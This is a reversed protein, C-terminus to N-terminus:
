GISSWLFRYGLAVEKAKARSAGGGGHGGDEHEFYWPHHGAANLAAVFRRSHSPDVRDDHSSTDILAAPYPGDGIQHLPSYSRLWVAHEEVDPDGYEDIWARGAPFEHFRLMDYVGVSAWVAGFREPYRTLMVGCLLGGNSGGHCAIKAPKSVGRVVLDDAIAAFDAFALDRGAGKASLHWDPGLEAGGRIYAMVYAGGRELWLKGNIGSYFPSLSVGYGGYGYIQVPVDGAHADAGKPLVLHYPVKTGDESTAELLQVTIGEADFLDPARYMDQWVIGDVGAKLNFQYLTAPQAFGQVSLILTGDGADSNADFPYVYFADAQIPLAVQTAARSALDLVWLEARMRVSQKWVLMGDVFILSGGDVVIGGEPRVLVEAAQGLAGLMLCGADPGSQVIYAFHSHNHSVTTDLPADLFIDERGDRRVTTVAKGITSAKTLSLLVGGDVDREAGCWLALDSKDAEFIVQAEDFAQGRAWMRATGPWSMDTADGGVASSVLVHDADVWSVSSRSPPLDFGGEVIACTQLDFEFYRAQDSGDLSLALMVRDSAFWATPAGRWHWNTDTAQSFADVDFVLQWDADRSIPTGDPVRLWRGRPAEETKLFTYLWDGRRSVGNIADPNELVAVALEVDRAYDADCLAAETRSNQAARFSAIADADTELELFRHTM